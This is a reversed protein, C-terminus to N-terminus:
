RPLHLFFGAGEGKGVLPLFTSHLPGVALEVARLADLQGWGWVNNPHGDEDGGCTLDYRPIASETLLQETREIDGRLSPDASWLLAVVGAVHPAAMSTGSLFGYGTGRISSRISQGPAAIDPKPRNSGDVSVPGRSSLTYITHSRYDYNGVSFSADYLAPPDTVSGCTSGSNGASVVVMIGAARVAEVVAQLTDPSCGESPPCAWSNNIIDPAMAPDGDQLPDGGNPYPALFFEFCESYTSPSGITYYMNRCGIWKAGPAVGIQNGQGDDGVVIGLTHTGHNHDDFPEASDGVADHWYYDHSAQSGDWGAYHTKLAPHDWDVGTDNGAVVVGEGTIGYLSWVDDAHIDLLNPEVGNPADAVVPAGAVVPGDGSSQMLSSAVRPNAELRAVDPRAALRQALAGDGRVAVMNVIYFRQHPVGKEQLWRLLPEQTKLAVQRLTQFVYRGKETKTALQAARSLDAQQRLVVLFEAEGGQALQAALIPSVEAGSGPLPSSAAAPVLLAALIFLSLVSISCRMRTVM